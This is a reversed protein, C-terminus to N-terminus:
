STRSILAIALIYTPQSFDHGYVQALEEATARPQRNRRRDLERHADSAPIPASLSQVIGSQLSVTRSPIRGVFGMADATLAAALPAGGGGAILVLDPAHIAIWRWLLHSEANERYATGSPPFQLTAAEPNALPIAILRFDRRAPDLKDFTEVERRVTDVSADPGQLGGVLLVTPASASAAPVVLAEIPTASTTLGISWHEIAVLPAASAVALLATGISM